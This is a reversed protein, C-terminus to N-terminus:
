GNKQHNLWGGLFFVFHQLDHCKEHHVVDVFLFTAFHFRVGCVGYVTYVHAVMVLSRKRGHFPIVFSFEFDVWQIELGLVLRNLAFWEFHYVNQM